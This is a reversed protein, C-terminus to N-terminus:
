YSVRRWQKGCVRNPRALILSFATKWERTFVPNLHRPTSTSPELKYGELLTKAIASLQLGNM